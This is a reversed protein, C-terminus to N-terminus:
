SGNLIQPNCLGNILKMIVILDTDNKFLPLHQDRSVVPIPDLLLSPAAERSLAAFTVPIGEPIPLHRLLPELDQWSAIYNLFIHMEM